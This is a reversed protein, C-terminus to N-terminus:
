DNTTGAQRDYERGLELFAEIGGEILPEPQAPQAPQASQSDPPYDPDPGLLSVLKARLHPVTARYWGLEEQARELKRILSTRPEQYTRQKQAKCARCYTSLGDNRSSDTTFQALPLYEQCTPCRKYDGRARSM